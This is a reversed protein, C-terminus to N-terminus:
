VAMELWGCDSSLPTRPPLRRLRCLAGTGGGATHGAACPLGATPVTLPPWRPPSPPRQAGSEGGGGGRRCTGRSPVRAATPRRQAASPRHTTPVGVTPLTRGQGGLPPARGHSPSGPTPGAAGGPGAGRWRQRDRPELCPVIHKGLLHHCHNEDRDSLFM